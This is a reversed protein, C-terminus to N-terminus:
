PGLSVLKTTGQVKAHLVDIKKRILVIERKKEQLAFLIFDRQPTTPESFTVYTVDEAKTLDTYKEILSSVTDLTSDLVTKVDLIKDEVQKLKQREEFEVLILGKGDVSAVVVRNAQILNSLQDHPVSPIITYLNTSRM